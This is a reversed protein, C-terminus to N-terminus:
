KISWNGTEILDNALLLSQLVKSHKDVLLRKTHFEQTLYLASIHVTRRQFSQAHGFLEAGNDAALDLQLIIKSLGWHVNNM